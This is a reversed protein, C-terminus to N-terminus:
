SLVKLDTALKVLLSFLLVLGFTNSKISDFCIYCSFYEQSKWAFIGATTVGTPGHNVVLEEQRLIGKVLNADDAIAGTLAPNANWPDVGLDASEKRPDGFIHHGLFTVSNIKQCYDSIFNNASLIHSYDNIKM